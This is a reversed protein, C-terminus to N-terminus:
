VNKKNNYKVCRWPSYSNLYLGKERGVLGVQSVSNKGIFMWSKQNSFNIQFLYAKQIWNPHKEKFWLLNLQAWLLIERVYIEKERCSSHCWMWWMRGEPTSKRPSNDEWFNTHPFFSYTICLWVGQCIFLRGTQIM